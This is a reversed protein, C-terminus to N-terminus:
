PNQHCAVHHCHAVLHEPSSYYADDSRVPEDAAVVEIRTISVFQECVERLQSIELADEVISVDVQVLSNGEAYHADEISYSYCMEHSVAIKVLYTCSHNELHEDCYVDQSDYEYYKLRLM